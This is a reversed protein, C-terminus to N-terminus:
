VVGSSERGVSLSYFLDNDHLSANLKKATEEADERTKAGTIVVKGSAFILFVIKPESVRYILGPFQEPEYMVNEMIDAAAELDVKGHMKATSVINEITIDPKKNIIFGEAKLKSVVKRFASRALKASKAGTCVMKGTRFILIATKPRKLRLVLGPFRRPHYEVNIMIRKIADLDMAQDLAACAVVNQIKFDINSVTITPQGWL